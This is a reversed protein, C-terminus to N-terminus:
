HGAPATDFIDESMSGTQATCFTGSYTCERLREAPVHPLARPTKRMKPLFLVLFQVNLLFTKPPLGM